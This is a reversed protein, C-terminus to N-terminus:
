PGERDVYEKESDIVRIPIRRFKDSYVRPASLIHKWFNGVNHRHKYMKGKLMTLCFFSM